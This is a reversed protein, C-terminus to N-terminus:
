TTAGALQQDLETAWTVAGLEDFLGRARTLLVAAEEPRGQRSLWLGLDACCRALAPRAHWAECGAIAARLHGEVVEPPEGDEAALLGRVRQVSAELGLPPKNRRDSDVIELLTELAARDGWTAATESVLHFLTSFDDFLGIAEFVSRMEALVRGLDRVGTRQAEDFALSLQYSARLTPDDMIGEADLGDTPRWVEGRALLIRGRLMDTMAIDLPTMSDEDARLLVEDWDGSVTQALVLNLASSSIWYADGFVRAAEVAQRGYGAAREADDQTWDANLNGLARCLILMDHSDRAIEAASELLMRGLGHPGKTMYHLALSVYGNAIESPTGLKEALRALDESLNRIDAGTRLAASIMARLLQIEEAPECQLEVDRHREAAVAYGRDYEGSNSLATALTAVARAAPGVEGLEDLADRAREAHGIAAAYAGSRLLQEALEAEIRARLPPDDCRDLATGLHGAAEAPSGLAAARAAARRLHTVAAAALAPRDPDDPVADLAELYHQAVISAVEGSDDGEAEMLAVVALHSAKRDRRSLTGYAIQRVASQVFQFQGLENSFRNTERRLLQVRVLAELVAELDVVEPCLSAIAEHTFASGVVSAQDLVRRQEPPLTDLRASILAQLSAPAGIAGLDLADPEALVYQGGRPVVLDRDILSRVTEVAFLPIGEAREVLSTRVGDPLGVVLGDLLAAMDRESLTELHLVTVRRNTALSPNAELLGPRTFLVVFCPFTGVRLLYELFMLLGDDAHQADDIVLAVPIEDESVRHLFTTWAAFLDERPFAGVAGVGLLAGLRPGLWEREKLDPVYRELGAALLEAPDDDPEVEDDTATLRQLRVRVAEALAFFAVGEGYSLCRGSHWRVPDNLGDVYKEFEWGLRSKGVGPEGDVVLLSPRHSEEVGHFLEKVLRLERDRGVIPAELGDARQAGGVAAVVARVSWLPVPDAKGKMVHSGVDVYSIASSTLLRTTEDVWVQGPEAASQVRAATNVADGAVMGQQAAGVTVAVEGTVIGVRMALDPVGVDAGLADIRNVLELGARVSREADDEHATPVGWVAMVADGIFKEVTGGYRAIIQRCEDFYTSLLERVDEQDRSESLSTFGVLDGFLVSTVRRSAVAQVPSAVAPAAAAQAAGCTGCFRAGPVIEAQCTVCTHAVLSGGCAHCFRATDPQGAVGCTACTTM